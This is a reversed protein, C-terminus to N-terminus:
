PCVQLTVDDVHMSTVGNWGDNFTGFQLQITSGAYASLDFSQSTWAQANSRQWVLTDIWNGYADLVLVYQVDSSFASASLLIGTPRQPAVLSAAEGSSAFLWLSLTAESTNKPITVRQRFDSYSYRNHPVATIGTRMSRAGGHARDSSYGASFATIPIEWDSSAEFGTNGLKQTCQAPNPTATPGPTPTPAPATGCTDLVVDDVYMATVGGAGTNTSGFQIRVTKGAYKKLNFEQYTWAQANSRQWLLTELVEFTDPNMVLVYQADGSLTESTLLANLAPRSPLALNGPETSTPYIWM